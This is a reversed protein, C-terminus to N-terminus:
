LDVLYIIIICQSTRPMNHKITDTNIASILISLAYMSGSAPLRTFLVLQMVHNSPLELQHMCHCVDDECSKSDCTDMKANPYVQLLLYSMHTFSLYVSEDVM